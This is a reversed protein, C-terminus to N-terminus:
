SGNGGNPLITFKVQGAGNDSGSGAGQGGVSEFDDASFGLGVILNLASLIIAVVLLVVVLKQREM